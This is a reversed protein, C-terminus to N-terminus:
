VKWLKKARINFDKEPYTKKFKRIAEEETNAKVIEIWALSKRNNKYTIRIEYMYM